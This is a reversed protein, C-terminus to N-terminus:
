NRHAFWVETADAVSSAGPNTVCGFWSSGGLDSIDPEAGAGIIEEDGGFDPLLECIREAASGTQGESDLNLPIMSIAGDPSMSWVDIVADVPLEPIARLFGGDLLVQYTSAANGSNRIMYARQAGAVQQANTLLTVVQARAVNQGGKESFIVGAYSLAALSMLGILAVSMMSVILNFM